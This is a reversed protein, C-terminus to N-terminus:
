HFGEHNDEMIKNAYRIMAQEHVYVTDAIKTAHYGRSKILTRRLVVILQSRHIAAEAFWSNVRETNMNIYYLKRCLFDLPLSFRM